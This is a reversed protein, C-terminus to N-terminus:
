QGRHDQEADVPVSSGDRALPTLGFREAPTAMDLAQHPRNTNYDAVWRDLEAQAVELCSFSRDALFEKRVSQHFREIKGTM